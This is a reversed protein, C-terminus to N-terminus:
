VNKASTQIPDIRIEHINVTNPQQLLWSIVNAVYDTDIKTKDPFKQSMKTTDLYGLSVLTTRIGSGSTSSYSIQRNFEKLAKKEVPYLRSGGKIGIDVTSGINIIYGTKNNELWTNYVREVLLVACFNTLAALNIFIDYDLSVQALQKRSDELTLDFGNARSKFDLIYDSCLCRQISSALGISPNGTIIIKKM